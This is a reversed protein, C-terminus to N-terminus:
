GVLEHLKNTVLNYVHKNLVTFKYPLSFFDSIASATSRSRSVGAFCHILIKDMGWYKMVFEAIQEAQDERLEVANDFRQDYYKMDPRDDFQMYLVNAFKESLVPAETGDMDEHDYSFISICVEEGTPVYAVAVDRSVVELKLGTYDDPVTTIDNVLQDKAERWAILQPDIKETETM